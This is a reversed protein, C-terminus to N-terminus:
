RSQNEILKRRNISVEASDRQRKEPDYMSNKGAFMTLGYRTCSMLHNACKPDEIGVNQGDKSVKWAYNEYENHLNVSSRTYSIPLGQVHKIGFDVSDAGKECPFINIGGQAIDAISKPEANDAVVPAKPLARLTATLHENLLETQYLIEHLIYGGNYWYIALIAAPDPDFGFDLAYGLLRAEHPVCEIVKWNSYIRGMVVEPCLGEIMQYYYSPNTQEYKQYRIATAPDINPLNDRFTGGIYITDKADRKLKPVFFGPTKSPELDFFRKIIWHNKPPTNLTFLIRISGKTTRLSDDLKMFEQEGIEEAEENWILNYGALSKLKATQSGSGAKYGHAQISNVGRTIHMNNETINFADRIEQEDIRDIVEQWCSTRIDEKVARMIAGRTYETGLLRSGVYRSATGSRGNGRGGMLFAYRWNKNEWLPLHSEAVEFNVKVPNM